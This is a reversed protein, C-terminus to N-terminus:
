NKVCNFEKQNYNRICSYNVIRGAKNSFKLKYTINIKDEENYVESSLVGKQNSKFQTTLGNTIPRKIGSTPSETYSGIYSLTTDTTPTLQLIILPKEDAGVNTDVITKFQIDLLQKNVIYDETIDKKIDKLTTISYTITQQGDNLTEPYEFTVGNRVSVSVDKIKVSGDFNSTCNIKGDYEILKKDCILTSPKILEINGDYVVTNNNNGDKLELKLYKSNENEFKVVCDLLPEIFSCIDSQKGEEYVLSNNIFVKFNKENNKLKLIIKADKTEFYKNFGSEIEIPSFDRELVLSQTNLSDIGFPGFKYFSGYKINQKGNIKGLNITNKGDVFSSYYNVNNLNIYFPKQATLETNETNQLLSKDDIKVTSPFLALGIITVGILFLTSLLLISVLNSNFPLKSKLFNYNFKNEQSKTSDFKKNIKAKETNDSETKSDEISTKPETKSEKAVSESSATSTNLQSILIQNNTALEVSPSISEEAQKTISTAQHTSNFEDISEKIATVSNVLKNKLQNESSSDTANDSKNQFITKFNTM